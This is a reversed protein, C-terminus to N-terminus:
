NMYENARISMQEKNMQEIEFLHANSCIFM